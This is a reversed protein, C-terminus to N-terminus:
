LQPIDKSCRWLKKTPAVALRTIEVGDNGRYIIITTFGSNSLKSLAGDKCNTTSFLTLLASRTVDSDFYEGPQNTATYTQTIQKGPGIKIKEFRTTADTMKPLTKNAATFAKIVDGESFVNSNSTSTSTWMKTFVIALGLVSLSIIRKATSSIGKSLSNPSSSIRMNEPLDSIVETKSQAASSIHPQEKSESAKPFVSIQAGCSMCFKALKAIEIGCNPCFM